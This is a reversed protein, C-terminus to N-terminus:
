ADKREMVDEFRGTFGYNGVHTIPHSINAWIEGGIDTYRHCFSYDESLPGRETEIKDFVRIMRTVGLRSLTSGAAHFAIREDSKVAGAEILGEICDRRILLVGGGVGQVQLHGNVPSPRNDHLKAVFRIPLNKQPYLAGVVPKDFALMDLILQPEFAMDADVQLIHDAKTKDFWITTLINRLDAIDPLSQEVFYYDYGHAVLVKALAMLSATTKSSNQHGFAPLAIFVSKM